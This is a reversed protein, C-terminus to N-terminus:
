GSDAWIEFRLTVSTKPQPFSWITPNTIKHNTIAIEYRDDQENTDLWYCYLRLGLVGSWSCSQRGGRNQGGCRDQGGM